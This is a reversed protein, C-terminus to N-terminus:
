NSISNYYTILKSLDGDEKLNLNNQKIYAELETQKDSLNSLVSKKDLKILTGKNDKFIYYTKNETFYKNTSTNPYVNETQIKKAMKKLVQTKGDALVELFASSTVGPINQYGNRFLLPQESGATKITFQKVPDAFTLVSQSSNKFYPRDNLLNYKLDMNQHVSNDAMTVDGKLWDDFLYPFGKVDTYDVEQVAMGNVNNIAQANCNVIIFFLLLVLINKKM